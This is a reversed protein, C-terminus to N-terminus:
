LVRRQSHALTRVFSRINRNLDDITRDAARRLLAKLPDAFYRPLYRLTTGVAEIAERLCPSRPFSRQWDGRHGHTQAYAGSMTRDLYAEGKMAGRIVM